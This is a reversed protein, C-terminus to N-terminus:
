KWTPNDKAEKVLTHEKHLEIISPHQEIFKLLRKSINLEFM